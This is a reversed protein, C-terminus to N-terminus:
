QEKSPQPGDALFTHIATLVQRKELISAHGAGDVVMLEMSPLVEGLATVDEIFADASGVVAFVPMKLRERLDARSAAFDRYGAAVWSLAAPDNTALALDSLSQLQAPGPLPENTPWIARLLPVLGGGRALSDALEDWLRHDDEPRSGGSGILVLSTVRDPFLCAFKLGIRGGMSHGIIHAQSLGEHNLLREVDYVMEIGYADSELPKDSDGHGRCDFAIVRFSQPLADLYGHAAWTAEINGAFGHILIVPDGTGVSRYHIQVGASDFSESPYTSCGVTLAVILVPIPFARRRM